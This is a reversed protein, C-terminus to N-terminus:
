LQEKLEKLEIPSIRYPATSISQTGLVLDICFDIDWDPLMGSLDSPFVEPFKCVVSVGSSAGNFGGFHRPRKKSVAERGQGCVRENRRSIEVVQQFSIDDKNGKPMQLWIGFTLDDIFRRVRERETPPLVVAHRALDVFRTEYQTVIMSGQPLREFQKRYEERLSFHIFKELIQQSFQDWTLPPSGAPRGRVYDEWWRKTSGHIQFVAFDVKNSEVIGM